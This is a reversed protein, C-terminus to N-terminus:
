SNELVNVADHSFVLFFFAKFSLPSLCLLFKVKSAWGAGVGVWGEGRRLNASASHLASTQPRYYLDIFMALVHCSAEVATSQPFTYALSCSKPTPATCIHLAWVLLKQSGCMGVILWLPFPTTVSTSTFDMSVYLVPSTARCGFGYHLMHLWGMCYCPMVVWSLLLFKLYNKKKKM